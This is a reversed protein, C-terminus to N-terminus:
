QIVCLGGSQPSIFALNRLSKNIATPGRRRGSGLGIRRCKDVRAEDILQQFFSIEFSFEPKFFRACISEALELHSSFTNPIPTLVGPV